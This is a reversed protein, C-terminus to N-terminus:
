DIERVVRGSSTVQLSAPGQYKIEGTGSTRADLYERAYCEIEGSGDVTAQLSGVSMRDADIEGRGEVQYRAEQATGRLSISGSGKVTATLEPVDLNAVEIDGDGDVLLMQLTTNANSVGAEANNHAQVALLTPHAVYVVPEEDALVRVGDTYKIVLVGEAVTAVIHPQVNTPAYISIAPKGDSVKVEINDYVAISNYQLNQQEVLRTEYSQGAVVTTDCSALFASFILVLSLYVV